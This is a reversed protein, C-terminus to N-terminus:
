ALARCGGCQLLRNERSPMIVVPHQKQQGSTGPTSNAEGIHKQGEQVLQPRLPTPSKIPNTITPNIKQQQQTKNKQPNNKKKKRYKTTLYWYACEPLSLRTDKKEPARLVRKHRGM